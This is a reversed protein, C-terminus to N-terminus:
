VEPGWTAKVYEVLLMHARQHIDLVEEHTLHKEEMDKHCDPCLPGCLYDDPKKSMRGQGRMKIHHPQIRDSCVCRSCPQERIFALYAKDRAPGDRGDIKM